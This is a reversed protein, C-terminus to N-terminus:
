HRSCLRTWGPLFQNLVSEHTALESIGALEFESFEFGPAVTCGVLCWSSGPAPEAAVWRGAPVVHQPCEGGPLDPGLRTSCTTGALSLEHILLAGGGHHHWAEDAAIRHWSSHEGAALLYLIATSAARVGRSTQVQERARYTERYHGGEPHPQLQLLQILVEASLQNNM